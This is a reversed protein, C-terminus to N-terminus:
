AAEEAVPEGEGLREIALAIKHLANGDLTRVARFGAPVAPDGSRYDVSQGGKTVIRTVYTREVHEIREIGNAMDPTDLLVTLAQALTRKATLPCVIIHGNQDVPEAAGALDSKPGCNRKSSSALLGLLLIATNAATAATGGGPGPKVAGPFSGAERIAREYEYLEKADIGTADAMAVAYLTRLSM